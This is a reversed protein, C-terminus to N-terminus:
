PARDLAERAKQEYGSDGQDVAMDVVHRLETKGRSTQGRDLYLLGLHYRAALADPAASLAQRLSAEAEEYAGNKFQVWGLTDLLTANRPDQELAAEAYKLAESPRNARDALLYALNNMATVLTPYKELVQELLKVAGDIDGSVELGQARLLMAGVYEPSEPPAKAIVPETVRLAEAPEAGTVLLMGLANRLRMCEMSDAPVKDIAARVGTIVEDAPLYEGSLGVVAGLMNAGQVSGDRLAGELQGAIENHRGLKTYASIIATRIVPPIGTARGKLQEFIRVAEEAKGAAALADLRYALCFTTFGPDDKVALQEARQFYTAATDYEKVADENYRRATATDSQELARDSKRKLKRAQEVCLSGFRYPWTSSQPYRAMFESALQKARELQDTRRYLGVLQDVTELMLAAGSPDDEATKLIERMESEALEYQETLEYLGSLDLCAQRFREVNQSTRWQELRDPSDPPQTLSRARTLDEKAEVYRGYRMALRGRTLLSVVHDPFKQLVRSLAAHAEKWQRQDLKIRALLLPGNADDPFDRTYAELATEADGYRKMATLGQIVTMRVRRRRSQEREDDTRLKDLVLHCADIMAEEQGPHRRYFEILQLDVDLAAVRREEADEISEEVVRKAEHFANIAAPLDELREYFVALLLNGFARGVGTQTEMFAHLQKEGEERRGTASYFGGAVRALMVNGPDVRAAEQLREVAHAEDGVKKHAYLQALRILNEVNEPEAERLKERKAIGARPDEEEDLYAGREQIFPDDPNISRARLLYSVGDDDPRQQVPLDQYALYLFKNADFDRPNAEVAELLAEVAERSRGSALLARGLAMQLASSRPLRDRATLFERVAEEPRGRAMALEARYTAGGAHDADQQALSTAYKEARDLQQRRLAMVFQRKQVDLDDPLEKELLDLHEAAKDLDDRDLYYAVYRRERVVPDTEAAILELQKADRESDSLGSLLLECQDLMRRVDPDDGFRQRVEAVIELGAERRGAREMMDLLRLAETAQDASVDERAFLQRLLAELNEYDGSTYAHRAQMVLAQAGSLDTLVGTIEGTRGLSRLATAEIGAIRLRASEDGPLGDAHARRILALYDLAEQPRRLQNLLEGRNLMLSLPPPDDRMINMYQTIAEDTYRLSEGPQQLDRYLLALRHLPLVGNFVQIWLGPYRGSTDANALQEAREFAQAALTFQRQAVAAQGRMYQTAADGPYRVETADLFKEVWQWRAAREERTAGEAHYALAVNFARVHMLRRKLQEGLSAELSRLGVTKRLGEDYVQLAAEYAEASPRPQSARDRFLETQAIYAWADYLAPELEVARRAHEAVKAIAARYVAPDTEDVKAIAEDWLFAALGLHLKPDTDAVAVARELVALAEDTKGQSRLASVYRDIMPWDTPNAEVGAKRIAQLGNDVEDRIAQVAAM